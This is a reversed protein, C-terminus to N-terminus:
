PYPIPRRFRKIPNKDGATSGSSSKSIGTSSPASNRGKTRRSGSNLNQHDPKLHPTTDQMSVKKLARSRGTKQGMKTPYKMTSDNKVIFSRMLCIILYLYTGHVVPFFFGFDRSGVFLYNARTHRSVVCNNITSVCLYLLIHWIPIAVVPYNQYIPHVVPFFLGWHRQQGCLCIYELTQVSCFSSSYFVTHQSLTKSLIREKAEVM